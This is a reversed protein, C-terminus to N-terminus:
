LLFNGAGVIIAALLAEEAVKLNVQTVGTSELRNTLKDFGNMQLQAHVVKVPHM